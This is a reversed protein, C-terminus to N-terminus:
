QVACVHGESSLDGGRDCTSPPTIWSCGLPVPPPRLRRETSITITDRMAMWRQRRLFGFFAAPNDLQVGPPCPSSPSAEGEFHHHHGEHGDLATSTPIRLLGLIPLLFREKGTYCSKFTKPTIVIFPSLRRLNWPIRGHLVVENRRVDLHSAVFLLKRFSGGSLWCAIMSSAVLTLYSVTLSVGYVPPDLQNLLTSGTSQFCGIRFGRSFHLINRNYDFAVNESSSRNPFRQWNLSNQLSSTHRGEHHVGPPVISTCCPSGFGKTVPNSRLERALSSRSVQSRVHFASM